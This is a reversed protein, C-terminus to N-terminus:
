LGVPKAVDTSTRVPTKVGDTRGMSNRFGNSPVKSAWGNSESRASSCRVLTGPLPYAAPVLDPGEDELMSFNVPTTVAALGWAIDNSERIGFGGKCFAVM